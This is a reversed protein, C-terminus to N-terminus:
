GKQQGTTGNITEVEKEEESLGRWGDDYFFQGVQRAPNQIRVIHADEHEAREVVYLWYEEGIEQAKTFQIDSLGAGVRDWDGGLSKVEIYRVIEEAANASEIDYGPHTPSMERPRRGTRREFDLVRDVGAREIRSRHATATSDAASDGEANKPAVYTRLRSRQRRPAEKGSEVSSSVDSGSGGKRGVSEPYNLDPPLPTPAHANRGLLAQIADTPTM